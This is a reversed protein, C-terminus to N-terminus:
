SAKSGRHSPDGSDVLAGGPPPAAAMRTFVRDIAEGLSWAHTHPHDLFGPCGNWVHEAREYTANAWDETQPHRHHHDHHLTYGPLVAIRTPLHYFVLRVWWLLWRRYRQPAPLKPDPAEDLLYRGQSLLVMRDRASGHDRLCGWHHESFTGVLGTINFVVFLPVVYALLLSMMASAYWAGALLSFAFGLMPVLTRPTSKHWDWLRYRAYRLYSGPLIISWWLRKWYEQRPRGPPFGLEMFAGEADDLRCFAAGHHSKIHTDRYADIWSAFTMLSITNAVFRNASESRFLNRHAAHHFLAFLAWARGVIFLWVIPLAWWAGFVVAAHGVGVSLFFGLFAETTAMAVGRKFVPQQGRHPCGSVWTIFAECCFAIPRPFTSQIPRSVSERPETTLNRDSDAFVGTPDHVLRGGAVAAVAARMTTPARSQLETM